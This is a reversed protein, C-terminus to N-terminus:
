KIIKNNLQKNNIIKNFHKNPIFNNNILIKYIM